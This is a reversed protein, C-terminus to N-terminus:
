HLLGNEQQLQLKMVFSIMKSAGTDFAGISGVFVIGKVGRKRHYEM